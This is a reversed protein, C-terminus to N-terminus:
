LRAKALAIADLHACGPKAQEIRGNLELKTDAITSPRRCVKVLVRM